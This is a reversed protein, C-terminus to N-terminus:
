GLQARSRPPASLGIKESWQGTEWIRPRGQLITQIHFDEAHLIHIFTIGIANAAGPPIWNFQAATVQDMVEDIHEHLDRYQGRVFETTNM